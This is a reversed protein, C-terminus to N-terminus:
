GKKQFVLNEWDSWNVKNNEIFSEEWETDSDELNLAITTNSTKRIDLNNQGYFQASCAYMHCGMCDCTGDTCEDSLLLTLDSDFDRFLHTFTGNKNDITFLISHIESPAVQHNLNEMDNVTAGKLLEGSKDFFPDVFVSFGEATAWHMFKDFDEDAEIINLRYSKLPFDISSWNEIYFKLDMPTTILFVSNDVVLPQNSNEDFFYVLPTYFNKIKDHLQSIGRTYQTVEFRLCEILNIPQTSNSQIDDHRGQINGDSSYCLPNGKKKSDAIWKNLQSCVIESRETNYRQVRGREQVYRIDGNSLIAKICLHGNKDISSKSNWLVSKIPQNIASLGAWLAQGHGLSLFWRQYDFDKLEPYKDMGPNNAIGLVRDSARLCKQHIIGADFPLGEESVEILISHNSLGGQCHICKSIENNSIIKNRVKESYTLAIPSADFDYEGNIPGLMIKKDKIWKQEEIFRKAGSYTSFRGHLKHRSGDGMEIEHDHFKLRFEGSDNFRYLELLAIEFDPLFSDIIIVERGSCIEYNEPDFQMQFLANDEQNTNNESDNSKIFKKMVSNIGNIDLSQREKSWDLTKSILYGWLLNPNTCLKSSISALFAKEYNGNNEIDLAIIHINRILDHATKIHDDAFGNNNLSRTICKLLIKYTLEESKSMPNDQIFAGSLRASITIKRLDSLIKRSSENSTILVYRECKNQATKYQKTFQNITKYFESGVKDSLSLKRKVQLYTKSSKHTIVIDDIADETEFAVKYIKEEHERELVNACDLELGMSLVFFAAVRQQFDIGSNTAAGGGTGKTM